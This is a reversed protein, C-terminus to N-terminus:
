TKVRIFGLEDQRVERQRRRYNVFYSLSWLTLILTLMQGIIFGYSSYSNITMFMMVNILSYVMSILGAFFECRGTPIATIAVALQNNGLLKVRIDKNMACHESIKGNLAENVETKLDGVGAYLCSYIIGTYFKIEFPIKRTFFDAANQIIPFTRGLTGLDNSIKEIIPTTRWFPTGHVTGIGISKNM